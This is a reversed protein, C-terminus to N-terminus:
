EVIGRRSKRWGNERLEAVEWDCNDSMSLLKTTDRLKVHVVTMPQYIAEKTDEWRHRWVDGPKHMFTEVTM